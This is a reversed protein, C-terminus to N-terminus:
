CFTYPNVWRSGFTIHPTRLYILKPKLSDEKNNPCGTYIYRCIHMQIMVCLLQHMRYRTQSHRSDNNVYFQLLFLFCKRGSYECWVAQFLCFFFMDSCAVVFRNRTGFHSDWTWKGFDMHASLHQNFHVRVCQLCNKNTIIITETTTTTTTIAFYSVQVAISDQTKPLHLFFYELVPSLSKPAPSATAVAVGHWAVWIHSYIFTHFWRCIIRKQWWMIPSHKRMSNRTHERIHTHTHTVFRFRYRCEWWRYWGSRFGFEFKLCVRCLMSRSWAFAILTSNPVAHFVPQIPM